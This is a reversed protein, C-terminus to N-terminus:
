DWAAVNRLAPVRAATIHGAARDAILLEAVM